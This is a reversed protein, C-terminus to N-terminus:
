RHASLLYYTGARRDGIRRRGVASLLVRCSQGPGTEGGARLSLGGRWRHRGFADSYLSPDFRGYPDHVVLRFHPSSLAPTYNEYGVVLVIHGKVRAHSVSVIVPIGADIFGVIRETVRTENTLTHYEFHLLPFCRQLWWMMNCHANRAQVPRQSGTNIDRWIDGIARTGGGTSQFLVAQELYAAMMKLCTSQCTDGTPQVFYPVSLIRTRTGVSPMM